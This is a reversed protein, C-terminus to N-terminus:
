PKKCFGGDVITKLIGRVENLKNKDKKEQAEQLTTKLYALVREMTTKEKAKEAAIREQEVHKMTQEQPVITWNPASLFTNGSGTKLKSQTRNIHALPRDLPVLNWDPSLRDGRLLTRGQATIAYVGGSLQEVTRNLSVQKIGSM